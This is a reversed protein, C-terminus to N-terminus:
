TSNKMWTGVRWTKKAPTVALGVPGQVVWAARLRNEAVGVLESVGSRQDPIPAAFEDVGEVLDEAGLAELDELGRGSSRHGVGESFAPNTGDAAFEEVAGKLPGAPVTTPVM